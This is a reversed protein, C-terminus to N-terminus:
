LRVPAKTEASKTAADALALSGRGAEPGVEPQKGAAIADIFHNLEHAYAEVYREPFFPYPNQSVFGATNWVAMSNPTPNGAQLAGKSGLVEVRQDYGYVARRSNEIQCLKGSATKLVCIASDFDKLKGIEPDILCSGTAYVETPEEGLLWRAMDFDHIMMDRFIGSSSAVYSAPPPSPDRSTIRVMEVNGIAGAEIQKKLARFTPDWRRQFGVMFPVKAKEVENLAAITRELSLDVPKECFVAKGAKASNVVLDFHTPTPTTIVVANVAKDALATEVSSVECGYQKAIAQASAAVPDVVYKLKANAHRSANMGHVKGMRGAGFLAIGIM